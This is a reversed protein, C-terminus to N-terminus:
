SSFFAAVFYLHLQNLSVLDNPAGDFVHSQLMLFSKQDGDRDQDFCFLSMWVFFTMAFFDVYNNTCRTITTAAYLFISMEM